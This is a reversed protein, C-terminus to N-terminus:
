RVSFLVDFNSLDFESGIVVPTAFPYMKPRKNNRTYMLSKGSDAFNNM